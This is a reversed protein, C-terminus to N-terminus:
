RRTARPTMPMRRSTAMPMSRGHLEGAMDYGDTTTEAATTLMTPLGAFDYGFATLVGRGDTSSKELGAPDYQQSTTNGNADVM